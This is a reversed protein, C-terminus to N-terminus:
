YNATVFPMLPGTQRNNQLFSKCKYMGIIIIIIVSYYLRKVLRLNESRFYPPPLWKLILADLWGAIQNIKTM